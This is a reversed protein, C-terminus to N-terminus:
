ANVTEHAVAPRPPAGGVIRQVHQGSSRWMAADIAYHHLNLGVFMLVGVVGPLPLDPLANSLLTPMWTAVLLGGATAGGMVCLWWHLVNREGRHHAWALEARHVCALYQVSHTAGIVAAASVYDPPFVFWLGGVVYPAWAGMPPWAGAKRSASLLVVLVGVVCGGALWRAGQEVWTPVLGVQVDYSRYRARNGRAWVDMLDVVWIPYFGYRLALVQRRQLRLGRLKMSVMAVGYAQKIYHWGTTSFVLVLLARMMWEAGGLQDAAMLGVVVVTAGLLALPVGVLALPHRQLSARGDGYALHYSAGFHASALALLVWIAATDLRGLLPQDLGPLPSVACWAVIGFGGLLWGDLRPHVLAAARPM